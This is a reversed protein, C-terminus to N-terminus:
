QKSAEEKSIIKAEESSLSKAMKPTIVEAASPNIKSAAAPTITKAADPNLTLAADRNIVKRVSDSLLSDIQPNFVIPILYNLRFQMPKVTGVSPISTEEAQNKMGVPYVIYRGDPLDNIYFEGTFDTVTSKVGGKAGELEYIITCQDVPRGGSDIVSGEILRLALANSFTGTLVLFIGTTLGFHRNTHIKRFNFQKTLM